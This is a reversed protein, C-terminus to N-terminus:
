GLSDNGYTSAEPAIKQLYVLPDEFEEKSPYYVPCEPLKDTWDVDAMDFKEVKRGSLEERGNVVGGSDRSGLLSRVGCSASDRLADGSSRTMMNNMMVNATENFKM